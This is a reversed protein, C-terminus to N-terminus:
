TCNSSTTVEILRLRSFDTVADLYTFPNGADYANCPGWNRLTVDFIDGAQDNIFDGAHYIPYTEAMPTILLRTFFDWNYKIVPGEFFGSPTTYGAGNPTGDPNVYWPGTIAVGNNDTVQVMTGFVDIFVNPIGATTHTGYVYQVFRTYINPLDPEVPLQCDFVTEDTFIFADIDDGVCFLTRPDDVPPDIGLDGTGVPPTGNDRKYNPLQIVVQNVTVYLNPQLTGTNYLYPYISVDWTCNSTNDPYGAYPEQARFTGSGAGGTEVYFGLTRPFANPYEWQIWVKPLAYHISNRYRRSMVINSEVQVDLVAACIDVPALEGYLGNSFDASTAIYNNVAQVNTIVPELGGTLSLTGATTYSVLVSNRNAYSIASSLVIRLFNGAPTPNGVMPVPVGGVTITWGASTGASTVARDFELILTVQAEDTFTIPYQNSAPVTPILYSQGLAANMSIFALFLAALFRLQKTKSSRKNIM